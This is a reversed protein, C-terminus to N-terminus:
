LWRRAIPQGQQEAYEVEHELVYRGARNRVRPRAREIIHGATAVQLLAPMPEPRRPRGRGRLMEVEAGGVESSGAGAQGVGPRVADGPGDDSRVRAGRGGDDRGEQRADDSGHAGNDADAGAAHAAPSAQENLHAQRRAAREERAADGQRRKALRQQQAAEEEVAVGASAKRKRGQGRVELQPRAAADSTARAAEQRRGTAIRPRQQAGPVGDSGNDGTRVTGTATVGGGEADRRVSRGDSGVRDSAMRAAPARAAESGGDKGGSARHTSESNTSTVVNQDPARAVGTGANVGPAASRQEYRQLAESGENDDGAGGETDEDVSREEVLERLITEAVSGLSDSPCASTVLFGCHVVLHEGTDDRVVEFNDFGADQTIKAPGVWQHALKMIGKGKPPKLVWVSDGISFTTDRRVRRNYYRERRLQDKALAARAARTARAMGTVLARHYEAFDRVHTVGSQRLLDNPARLKRRMMLENPSFGTGSHKARNYAYSAWTLWRDWDDQAASVYLSVM